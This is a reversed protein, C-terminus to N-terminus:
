RENGEREGAAGACCQSNFDRPRSATKIIAPAASPKAPQLSAPVEPLPAPLGGTEAGGASGGGAGPPMAAGAGLPAALAGSPPADLYGATM